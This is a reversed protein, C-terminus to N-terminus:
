VASNEGLSFPTTVKPLIYYHQAFGDIDTDYLWILVVAIFGNITSSSNVSQLVYNLFGKGPGLM